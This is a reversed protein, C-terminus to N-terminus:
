ELLPDDDDDEQLELRAFPRSPSLERNKMLRFLFTITTLVIFVGIVIGVVVALDTCKESVLACRIHSYSGNNPKESIGLIHCMLPYLDVSNISEMRYGKRFAPGHAALFPHMSRLSNDYGHDGLRPLNGQQVITWGEDAVLIIPQIRENNRYHLKDPIDNKLYAKMHPHCKSLNKYLASPESLPIIAGVPTLDVVTYSSRNICQDLKILRDQSCQVMGHDSTIIVNIRGWLGTENLQQMLLGINEDVEKLAKRMETTNEPGFTHGTHDPEEWYLTAFKVSEDETLWKTINGLRERFSVKYDYKLFYTPTHNQIMLDTGPWMAAASKYGQEEVSVWIPTAENWWFPDSDNQISFVKKTSPDYMRSALIGHSEAYLGTALSYHNPFTKTIFVNTLHEIHVGDSFFKQLNPFSYNKLYDARFGDFSVLLLPSLDKQTGNGANLSIASQYCTALLILFAKIHM